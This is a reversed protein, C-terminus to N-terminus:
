FEWIYFTYEKETKFTFTPEIKFDAFNPFYNAIKMSELRYDFVRAILVKCNKSAMELVGDCLEQTLCLGGDILMNTYFHKNEIWDGVIVTDGDYWPDIDLQRDSLPILKKTCGLLLTTGKKLHFKYELVDDDSPSLPTPFDSAWYNKDIM